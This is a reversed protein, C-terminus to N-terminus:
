LSDRFKNRDWNTVGDYVAKPTKLLGNLFAIAINCDKGSYELM